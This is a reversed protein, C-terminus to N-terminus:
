PLNAPPVAMVIVPVPKKGPAVTVTSPAGHVLGLTVFAVVIVQVVGLPVAPAFFMVTVLAPPWVEPAVPFLTNM